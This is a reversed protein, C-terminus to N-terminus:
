RRRKSVCPEGRFCALVQAETEESYPFLDGGCPTVEVTPQDGDINLFAVWPQRSEIGGCWPGFCHVNLTVHREYRKTFGNKQISRGLFRAAVETLDPTNTQNDFDTQPLKTKDFDFKGVVLTYRTESEALNKYTEAVDTPLCSLAQATGGYALSLCFILYRM